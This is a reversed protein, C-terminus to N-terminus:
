FLKQSKLLPSMQRLLYYGPVKPIIVLYPVLVLGTNKDALSSSERDCSGLEIEKRNPLVSCGCFVIETNELYCTLDSYALFPCADINTLAAELTWSGLVIEGSWQNLDLNLWGLKFFYTILSTSAIFCRFSFLDRRGMFSSQGWQVGVWYKLTQPVFGVPSM